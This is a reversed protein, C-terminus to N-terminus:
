IERRLADYADVRGTAPKMEPGAAVTTVIVEHQRGARSVPRQGNLTGGWMEAM